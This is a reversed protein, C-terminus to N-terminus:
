FLQGRVAGDPFEGTHLNLYYGHPDANIREAVAPDVHATGSVAFVTAPLTGTFLEVAIAGNEGAAGQHLHGVAPPALRTWATSFAVTDGEPRFFGSARGDPDGVNPKEETFVEQAGDAVAVLGSGEIISLVNIRSGSPTLQGRVAGGPFEETHLNVYFGSPDTLLGLALEEDTITTQGAVAHLTDPLATDFFVLEVDGNEGAAGRHVHGLTPAETGEWELAFTVRDGKISILARGYGEPDGVAPGDATPVEEAGSLEATFFVAKEGKTSNPDPTGAPGGGAPNGHGGHEDAHAAGATAIMVAATATALIRTRM